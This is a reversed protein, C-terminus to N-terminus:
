LTPSDYDWVARKMTESHLVAAEAALPQGHADGLGGGSLRGLDVEATQTRDIVRLSLAPTHQPGQDDGQDVAAVLVDV